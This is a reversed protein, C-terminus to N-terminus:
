RREVEKLSALVIEVTHGPKKNEHRRAETKCRRLSSDASLFGCVQCRAAPPTTIIERGDASRSDAM